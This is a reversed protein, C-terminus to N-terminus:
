EGYFCRRLDPVEGENALSWLPFAMNAQKVKRRKTRKRLKSTKILRM